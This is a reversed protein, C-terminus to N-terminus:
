PQYTRQRALLYSDLEAQDRFVSMDPLSGMINFVEQIQPQLNVFSTQGLHLKQKKVAMFFLRIGSSTVYKLGNLDFILQAPKAAILPMLRVELSAVTANDLNGDLAITTETQNTPTTKQSINITLANM